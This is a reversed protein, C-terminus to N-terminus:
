QKLLWQYPFYITVSFRTMILTRIHLSGPDMAAGTSTTYVVYADTNSACGQVGHLAIYYLGMNKLRAEFHHVIKHLKM